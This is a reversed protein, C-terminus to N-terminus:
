NVDQKPKVNIECSGSFGTFYRSNLGVIVEKKGARKAILRVKKRLEQGPM